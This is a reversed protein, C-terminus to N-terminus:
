SLECYQTWGHNPAGLCILGVTKDKSATVLFEDYPSIDMDQVDGKHRFLEGLCKHYNPYRRYRRIVGGDGAAYLLSGNSSYRLKWIQQKGFDPLCQREQIGSEPVYSSISAGGVMMVSSFGDDLASGYEEPTLAVTNSAHGVEFCHLFRGDVATAKVIGQASVSLVAQQHTSKVFPWSNHLFTIDRIVDPHLDFIFDLPLPMRLDFFTLGKGNVCSCVALHPCAPDTALAARERGNFACNDYCMLQQGTEVDLVSLRRATTAALIRRGDNTFRVANVNRALGMTTVHFSRILECRLAHYLCVNGDYAGSCFLYRDTPSFAVGRVSGSHHRLFRASGLSEM